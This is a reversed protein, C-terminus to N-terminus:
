NLINKLEKRVILKVENMNKHREFFRLAGPKLHMVLENNPVMGNRILANLFKIQHEEDVYYLEYSELSTLRNSKIKSDVYYKKIENNKLLLFEEKTLERFSKSCSDIFEKQLEESLKSLAHKTLNRAYKIHIKKEDDNMFDFEYDSVWDSTRNRNEFYAARNSDTLHNLEEPNLQLNLKVLHNVLSRKEQTNLRDFNSRNLSIM